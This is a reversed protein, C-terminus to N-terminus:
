GQHVGRHNVRSLAGGVLKCAGGAALSEAMRMEAKRLNLKM